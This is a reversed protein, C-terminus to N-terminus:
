PTAVRIARRFLRYVPYSIAMLLLAYFSNLTDSIIVGILFVLSLFVVILTTWPYGWAKFPRALDPARKRLAFLTVFGSSYMVIYFFATVAVLKEFTGSVVFMIAALATILLATTPTGKENVTAARASFLGDRGMGYMIRPTQLFCANTVSVLSLFSLATIIQGGRAGFITQAADAAALQSAALTSLPLVYLLALNVLLYIGIIALVASLMSRPLNRAPDKDEESFYIAGYWGDYTVIVSQFALVLALFVASATSPVPLSTGEVNASAKSGFIFCAAVLAVFGLATAFGMLEQARSGVRLGLWHLLTFALLTIIAIAKTYGALAPVLKGTYEGIVITISATVSCFALWNCWGITFGAYEGFARRAYVYWGGAQPLATALETVAITGCLAYVGGLMWIGLILWVNGLQAAVTGPTRLIGMGITSGLTVAIGFSVGLIRLLKGKHEM